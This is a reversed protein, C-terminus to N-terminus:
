GVTLRNRGDAKSKYLATDARRILADKDTVSADLNALGLSITVALQEGGHDVRHSEINARIREAVLEAKDAKAMPLIVAM